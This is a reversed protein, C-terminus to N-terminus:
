KYLNSIDEFSLNENHDVYKKLEHLYKKLVSLKRVIVDLYESDLKDAQAVGYYSSATSPTMDLFMVLDDCTKNIQSVLNNLKANLSPANKPTNMKILM